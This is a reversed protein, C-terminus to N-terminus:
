LHFMPLFLWKLGICLPHVSPWSAFRAKVLPSFAVAAMGMPDLVRHRRPHCCSSLSPSDWAPTQWPMDSDADARDAVPSCPRRVALLGAQHKEGTISFPEEARYQPGDNQRHGISSFPPPRVISSAQNSM